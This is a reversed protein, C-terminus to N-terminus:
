FLVSHRCPNHVNGIPHQGLRAKINLAEQTLKGRKGETNIEM